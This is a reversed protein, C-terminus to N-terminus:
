VGVGINVAMDNVEDDQAHLLTVIMLLIATVYMRM